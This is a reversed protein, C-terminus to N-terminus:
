ATVGERALETTSLVLGLLLHTALVLGALMTILNAIELDHGVILVAMGAFVFDKNPLLPLRSIIMRLSSLLLWWSLAVQPLVLHWMLATLGASALVRVSQAFLVFRLERPPLSFLRRRLLMPAISSVILIAMSTSLSKFHLDV